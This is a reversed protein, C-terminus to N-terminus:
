KWQEKLANLQKHTGSEPVVPAGYAEFSKRYEHGDEGFYSVIVRTIKRRNDAIASQKEDTSVIGRLRLIMDKTM